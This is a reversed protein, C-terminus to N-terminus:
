FLITRGLKDLLKVLYRVTFFRAVFISAYISYATFAVVSLFLWPISRLLMIYHEELVLWTGVTTDFNVCAQIIYYYSMCPSMM